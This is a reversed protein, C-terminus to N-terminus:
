ADVIAIELTKSGEEGTAVVAVRYSGNLEEADTPDDEDIVSIISNTVAAQSVGSTTSAGLSNVITPISIAAIANDIYTKIAQATALKTAAGALTTEFESISTTGDSLSGFQVTGETTTINGTATINQDASIDDCYITGRWYGDKFRNASSGIDWANTDQNGNFNIPTIWKNENDVLLGGADSMLELGGNAHFVRQTRVSDFEVQGKFTLVDTDSDKYAQVNEYANLTEGPDAELEFGNISIADRPESIIIEFTPKGM